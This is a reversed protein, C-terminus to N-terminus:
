EMNDIYRVVSHDQCNPTPRPSGYRSCQGSDAEPALEDASNRDVVDYVQAHGCMEATTGM